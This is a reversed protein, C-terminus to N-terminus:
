AVARSQQNRLRSIYATLADAPIRRSRGIKVSEVEGSKLLKFMTARSIRAKKASEEVTLLLPDSM